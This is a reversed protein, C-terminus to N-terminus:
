VSGGLYAARLAKYLSSGGLEQRDVRVRKVAPPEHFAWGVSIEERLFARVVWHAYTWDGGHLTKSLYNADGGTAQM